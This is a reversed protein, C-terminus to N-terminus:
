GSGACWVTARRRYGGGSRRLRQISPPRVVMVSLLKARSPVRAMPNRFIYKGVRQIKKLGDFVRAVAHWLFFRVRGEEESTRKQGLGRGGRRSTPASVIEGRPSNTKKSFHGRWRLRSRALKESRRAPAPQVLTPANRAEEVLVFLRLGPIPVLTM